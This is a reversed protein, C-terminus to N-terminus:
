YQDQNENARVFTWAAFEEETANDPRTFVDPGYGQTDQSMAPVLSNPFNQQDAYAGTSPQSAAGEPASHYMAAQEISSDRLEGLSDASEPSDKPSDDMNFKSFIARMARIDETVQTRPKTTREQIFARITRLIQSYGEEDPLWWHNISPMSWLEAIKTRFTQPWIYSLSNACLVFCPLLGSFNM